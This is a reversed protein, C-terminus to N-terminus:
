VLMLDGMASNLKGVGSDTTMLKYSCVGCFVAQVSELWFVFGYWFEVRVAEFVFYLRVDKLTCVMVWQRLSQDGEEASSNTLRRGSPGALV